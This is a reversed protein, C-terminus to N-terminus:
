KTEPNQAQIDVTEYEFYKKLKLMPKELLHWTLLSGVVTLGFTTVVFFLWTKISNQRPQTIANFLISVIPYHILYMSYSYKGFFTLVRSRFFRSLIMQRPSTMVIVMLAGTALAILSYGWTDLYYNQQLPVIGNRLGITIIGGLTVILLPWAIRSSILKWRESQFAIAILAGVAFGDFRTISSFYLFDVIHPVSGWFHFITLRLAVSLVLIILSLIVLKRRSLLFILAPWILYFQEEIALSWTPNILPPATGLKLQPIALWNQLYFVYYPWTARDAAATEPSLLPMLLFIALIVLFYLPFIRLIRRAYFNKFYNPKNRTNLLISTILFGSLVFFIDVGIWGVYAVRNLFIFFTNKSLTSAPIFIHLFMVMLIALGRVGDM